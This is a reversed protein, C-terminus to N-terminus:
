GIFFEVPSSWSVIPEGSEPAPPSPPEVIPPEADGGHGAHDRREILIPNDSRRPQAGGHHESEVDRVFHPIHTIGQMSWMDSDIVRRVTRCYM